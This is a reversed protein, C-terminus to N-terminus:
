ASIIGFLQLLYFIVLLITGLILYSLLRKGLKNQHNTYAM